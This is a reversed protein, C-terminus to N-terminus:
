TWAKFATPTVGEYKKFIRNFTRVHNYGVMDSIASMTYKKMKIFEKAKLIRYKNIFDLLTESYNEKFIKSIYQPTMDFYEGISDVNLNANHYNTHIYEIIKEQFVQKKGSTEMANCIENIASVIHERMMDINASYLMIKKPDFEAYATESPIKLISAAMDFILCKTYELSINSDNKIKQIVSDVVAVAGEFNAVRICNILAQEVELTFYYESKM